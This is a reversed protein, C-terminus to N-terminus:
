LHFMTLKTNPFHREAFEKMKPVGDQHTSHINLHQIENGNELMYKMIDLGTKEEDLDYDLSIYRITRFNRLLFVCEEYTRVCNYISNEPLPRHDDLIIRM